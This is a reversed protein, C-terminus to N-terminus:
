PASPKVPSGPRKLLAVLCAAALNLGASLAFASGYSGTRDFLYGAIVPGFAASSAAIAWSLGLIRGVALRGFFDGIIAPFLISTCGFALGFLLASPYLLGVGTSALFGLFALAQAVLGIALLPLRGLRDSAMGSLLRGALSGAGILSIVLAARLTPVGLDLAFPVIHVLPLFAVMWTMTYVATLLWFAATRRAAILSWAADLKVQGAERAPAIGDSVLGMREPDRVMVAACLAILVAGMVGMLFYTSRWGYAALLLAALPPVLLNGFSQGSAGIGLALGRRQTFWRVVTASCPVYIASMGLAAILGLSLYLQWQAEVRSTLVLGAGLLLAGCAIVIRPGWRDTCWGSAAGLGSYILVYLSFPLSLSTRDWGTEAAMAPLFVGYSFQIGYAVSLIGFCGAVVLWGYFLRQKAPRAPATPTAM